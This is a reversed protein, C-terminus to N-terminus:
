SPVKSASNHRCTECIDCKESSRIEPPGKKASSERAGTQRANVGGGHLHRGSPEAITAAKSNANDNTRQGNAFCYRIQNM